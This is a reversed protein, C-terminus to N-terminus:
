PGDCDDAAGDKFEARAADMVGENDVLIDEDLEQVTDDKLVIGTLYVIEVEPGDDLCFDLEARFEADFGLVGSTFTFTKSYTKRRSM